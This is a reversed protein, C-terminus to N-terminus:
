VEMVAAATAVERGVVKTLQTAPKPLPLEIAAADTNRLFEAAAEPSVTNIAMGSGLELGAPTVLRPIITLYWHYYTVGAYLAPATRITYNYDPDDLGKYLKQLLRSLVFGLDQLEDEEIQGFSAMHRRPTIHTLFPAASAYPELVVFHESELVVRTQEVLEQRLVSCFICKGTQDYHRIAEALRRSTHSSLVPTGIVQSHSHELSTGAGGGYNKFICVDAIAPNSGITGFCGKYVRLVNAFQEATYFAPVLSHDPTEIIVDHIGAGSITRHLGEIQRAPQANRIFAAFKNPVVRVAWSGTEDPLAYLEAPTQKENGACFPCGPEYKARPRRPRASQLEPRRKARDAAIMVWENTYPDQRLETM